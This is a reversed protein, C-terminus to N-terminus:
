NLKKMVKGIQTREGNENESEIVYLIYLVNSVALLSQKNYVASDEETFNQNRNLCIHEKLSWIKTLSMYVFM